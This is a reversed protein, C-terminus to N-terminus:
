KRDVPMALYASVVDETPGFAAVRGDRLWLTESALQRIVHADHSVVISTVGQAQLKRIQEFSRAQFRVDGIGWAEDVLIIDADVHVAVSFGLKMIMGLSYHKLQMELFDAVGSFEVISAFKRHIERQRMGLIAGVLFINERGTLDANMGAVPELLPAVRGQVVVTGSTPNTVGAIIRLLTTKGSGNAGIIGLRTGPHSVTLDVDQLAWFWEAESRRGWRAVRRLLHAVSSRLFRKNVGGCRIQDMM